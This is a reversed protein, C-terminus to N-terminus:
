ETAVVKSWAPVIEVKLAQRRMGDRERPDHINEVSSEVQFISEPTRAKDRHRAFITSSLGADPVLAKL